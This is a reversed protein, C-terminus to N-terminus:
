RTVRHNRQPLPAPARDRRKGDSPEDAATREDGGVEDCLRASGLPHDPLHAEAETWARVANLDVEHLHPRLHGADIQNEDNSRREKEPQEPAPCSARPIRSRARTTM